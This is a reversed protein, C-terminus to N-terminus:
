HHVSPKAVADPDRMLMEIFDTFVNIGNSIDDFDIFEDNNHIAQLQQQSFIMPNLGYVPVGFRRFYSNDNSAPFFMPVVDANEFNNEIAKSLLEFCTEPLTTYQQPFKNLVEIKIISDDIVQRIDELFEVPDVEPLLRCDITAEALQANINPNHETVGFNTISLTNKFVAELEPNENIYKSLAPKFILWNIHKLAYGKGGGVKDGISRFMLGSATCMHIPQKRILVRHLAEILRMNAYDSGVISAHGNSEVDASLRLWLMGKEAISIGFFNKGDPAFGVNELGSGGEGVIILPNILNIDEYTITGSGKSGGTEEGSVCLLSVNFPLDSNKSIELFKVVSMFQIVALGKNDVAGRGWVKKEAITGSFPPYKWNKENGAPVVDMHNLFVINPKHVSLPYLSAIFNFSDSKKSFFHVQLGADACRASLFNGATEENGTESRVQIYDSLLYLAESLMVSDSKMNQGSSVLSSLLAVMLSLLNLVYLNGSNFM